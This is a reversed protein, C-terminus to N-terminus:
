LKSIKEGLRKKAIKKVSDQTKKSAFYVEKGAPIGTTYYKVGNKYFTWYL